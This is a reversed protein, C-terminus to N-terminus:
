ESEVGLDVSDETISADDDSEEISTSQEESESASYPVLDKVVSRGNQVRRMVHWPEGDSDPLFLDGEWEKL